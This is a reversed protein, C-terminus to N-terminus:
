LVAAVHAMHLFHHRLTSLALGEESLIRQGLGSLEFETVLRQV